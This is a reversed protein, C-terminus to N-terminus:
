GTEVWTKGADFYIIDTDLKYGIPRVIDDASSSVDHTPVGSDGVYVADGIGGTGAISSVHIIGRLLLGKTPLSGTATGTAVALLKKGHAVTDKDAAAWQAQGGLETLAYVKGATFSTGTGVSICEGTFKGDSNLGSYDGEFDYTKYNATFTNPRESDLLTETIIKDWNAM